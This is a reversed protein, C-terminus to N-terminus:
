ERFCVEGLLLEKISYIDDNSLETSFAAEQISQLEEDDLYHDHNTDCLRFVRELASVYKPRLEKTAHNFLPYIPYLVARQACYLLDSLDKHMKTSLQIGVDVQPYDKVIGEIFEKQTTKESFLDKKSGAIIVPIKNDISSIKPLWYSEIRKKAEEVTLDYLLVIVSAAEVQEKLDEEKAAIMMTSHLVPPTLSICKLKILSLFCRLLYLLPIM